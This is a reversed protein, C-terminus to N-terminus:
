DMKKRLFLVIFAMGISFGGLAGFGGVNTHVGTQVNTPKKADKMVVATVEKGDITVKGNLDVNFTISEALEYGKPASVETFTYTGPKVTVTHNKGEESTWKDVENGEKDTVKLVAGALEKNNAADVKSIIVDHSAYEDVMVVESVPNGDVSVKGEADVTFTVDSAVVYGAPASNEHLTYKGHKVTVTHNEEEVSTWNSIVDGNENKLTMQAGGIEKGGVDQKSIKVTKGESYTNTLTIVGNGTTEDVVPNVTSNFGNVQVESVSYTIIGGNSNTKPLSEWTYTWNNEANLQVTGAIMNNALLKVEISEPFTVDAVGGDNWVKTVTYSVKSISTDQVWLVGTESVPTTTKNTNITGDANLEFYTDQTLLYGEPATTERLIYKKGTTLRTVVHAENTSDWEEVVNGQDDIIQIHAGEIEHNDLIDVKSVSVSTENDVMVVESVPNGDVSVKGEADVTFTIDNAVAYGAPASDEHLTYTGESLVVKHEVGNSTWSEVVNGTSNDKLSLAAGSIEEGGLTKKSVSVKKFYTNTIDVIGTNEKNVTVTQSTTETSTGGVAMTTVCTYDASGNLGNNTETVIYQGFKDEPIDSITYSYIGTTSDQTMESLKVTKVDTIAPGSVKFTVDDKIDDSITAGAFTKTFTLSSTPHETKTNTVVLTGYSDKTYSPTYGAVETVEKVTYTIDNGNADKKPLNTFTGTWANDKNLTLTAVTANGNRLAVQVGSHETESDRWVKRVPIETTDIEYTNTVKIKSDVNKVVAVTRDRSESGNVQYTTTVKYGSLGTGNEEVKYTGPALNTIAYSYQENAITWGEDSLHITRVPIDDKSITFTISNSLSRIQDANLGSFQKTLTISGSESLPKNEVIKQYTSTNGELIDVPYEKGDSIVTRIPETTDTESKFLVYIPTTDLEYHDPAKTEVLKYIVSRNLGTFRTYGDAATTKTKQIAEASIERGSTDCTAIYLKFEAGQLPKAAVGMEQKYISLTVGNSSSTGASQHVEVNAFSKDATLEKQTGKLVVHNISERTFKEGVALNPYGDYTIKTYQNDPITITIKRTADDYSYQDATASAGNIKLTGLQFDIESGITDELTLTDGNPNLDASSKNVSITYHIFTERDNYIGDKNLIDKSNYEKWRSASVAPATYDNVKIKATNKYEISGSPVKNLDEYTTNFLIQIDNNKALNILSDSLKFNIVNGTSTKTIEVNINSSGIDKSWNEKIMLSNDVMKLNSPLTDTIVVNKANEPLKSVTLVWPISTSVDNGEVKFTNWDTDKSLYQKFVYKYTADDEGYKKENDYVKAVNTYTTESDPLTTIKTKYTFSIEGKTVAGFAFTIKNSDKSVTPNTYGPSLLEVSADLYTMGDPITDEVKLNEMGSEPVNVTIKWQVEQSNTTTLCDKTIYTDKKGVVVDKNASSYETSGDPYEFVKNNVKYEQTKDAPQIYTTKYTITYIRNSGEPMVFGADSSLAAYDLGAVSPSVNFTGEKFTSALYQGDNVDKLIDKLKMGSIDFGEKGFQITWTILGDSEKRGDKTITPYKLDESIKADVWGRNENTHEDSKVFAENLKKNWVNFNYTIAKNVLATYKAYITEGNTMTSISYAFSKDSVPIPNAGTYASTCASDTYFQVNGTLTLYEGMKDSFIVNTNEGKSAIEVLYDAYLNGDSGKHVDGGSKKVSISDNSTDRHMDITITGVGPFELNTQGGEGGHIVKDTFTGDFTLSGKRTSETLFSESTYQITVKRGSVTFTGEKTPGDMLDGTFNASIGEPLEYTLIDATTYPYANDPFSWNINVQVTNAFDVDVPTVGGPQIETGDVVISVGLSSTNGNLPKNHEDGEAFVFSQMNGIIMLLSVMFIWFKKVLGKRM